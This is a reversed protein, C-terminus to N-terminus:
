KTAKLVGRLVSENQESLNSAVAAFPQAEALSFVRESNLWGITNFVEVELAWTIFSGLVNATM